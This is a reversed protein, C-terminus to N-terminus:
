KLADPETWGTRPLIADLRGIISQAYLAAGFRNPHALSGRKCVSEFWQLQKKLDNRNGSTIHRLAKNFKEEAKGCQKRRLDWRDDNTDLARFLDLTVAVIKRFGGVNTAGFRFNWLMSQQTSFGYDPPFHLEAFHMRAKDEGLSGNAALVADNLVTNSTEHWVQSLRDLCVFTDEGAACATGGGLLRVLLTTLQNKATGKKFEGSGDEVPIGKYVLPYYGTVIVYASPFKEDIRRLLSLMPEGCFKETQSKIYEETHGANLLTRFNLDNICGGVLVLNVDKGLEDAARQVQENITPFSTNVEEGHFGSWLVVEFSEEGRTLSNREIVAGAHAYVRPKVQRGTKRELWQMTRCWFKDREKLGQGWMISDGFVAMVLKQKASARGESNEDFISRCRDEYYKDPAANASGCALYLFVLLICVASADHHQLNM